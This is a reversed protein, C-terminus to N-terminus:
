FRGYPSDNMASPTPFGQQQKRQALGYKRVGAKHGNGLQLDPSNNLIMDSRSKPMHQSRMGYNAATNYQHPPPIPGYPQAPQPAVNSPYYPSSMPYNQEGYGYTNQSQFSRASPEYNSSQAYQASQAYQQHGQGQPQPQGQPHNGPLSNQSGPAQHSSPDPYYGQNMPAQQPGNASSSSTSGSSSGSSGTGTKLATPKNVKDEETGEDDDLYVQPLKLGAAEKKESNEPITADHPEGNYYSGSTDAPGENGRGSGKMYTFDRQSIGSSTMSHAPAQDYTPPPPAYGYPQQNHANPQGAPYQSGGYPNAQYGQKPQGQQFGQPQNQQFGPNPTATSTPPKPINSFTDKESAGNVVKFGDDDVPSAPQPNSWGFDNNQQKLMDEEEEEEDSRDSELSVPVFKAAFGILVLSILNFVASAILLWCPWKLHPYFLLVSIVCILASLLFAIMSLFIAITWYVRSGGASISAIGMVNVLMTILTLGAAVPAVILIKALKDRASSGMTWKVNSDLKSPEYSASASSCTSGKCYGFVGYKYTGDDALPLSHVVPTSITAIILFALAAIEFPIAAANTFLKM